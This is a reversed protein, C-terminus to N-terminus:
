PKVLRSFEPAGDSPVVVCHVGDQWFVTADLATWPGDASDASEVTYGDYAFPWSLAAM